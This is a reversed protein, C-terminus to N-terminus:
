GNLPHRWGASPVPERRGDAHKMWVGREAIVTGVGRVPVNLRDADAARGLKAWAEADVALLLEFDEGDNLVHDLLSRGDAKSAATADSSAAAETLLADLEIGVSSSAAMRAADTSLGDSLDMMAHLRDGLHEAFWRAERVRPEFSLHHGTRSGGLSGTVLIADGPRAGCRTVPRIGPWPEAAVTVDIALPRDWSNTDGGLLRVDYRRALDEIGGYLRRAQEMSWSRPLAVSVLAWRPRVAMAACDSLNVALAKRGIQEPSHSSADFHVGDMVMDASLLVEGGGALRVLAMDDGLGIPVDPFQGCRGRLWDILQDETASM